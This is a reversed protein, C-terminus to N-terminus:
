MSSSIAILTPSQYYSLHIQHFVHQQSIIVTLLLTVYSESYNQHGTLNKSLHVEHQAYFYIILRVWSTYIQNNISACLVEICIIKHCKFTTPETPQIPLILFYKLWKTIPTWVYSAMNEKLHRSIWIHCIKFKTNPQYYWYQFFGYRKLFFFSLSWHPKFLTEDIFM